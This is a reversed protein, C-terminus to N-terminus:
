DHLLDILRLLRILGVYGLKIYDDGNSVDEAALDKVALLGDIDNIGAEELTEPQWHLYDLAM